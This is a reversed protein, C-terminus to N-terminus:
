RPHHAPVFVTVHTRRQEGKSGSLVSVVEAGWVHSIHAGEGDRQACAHILVFTRELM